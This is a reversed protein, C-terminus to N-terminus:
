GHDPDPFALQARDAASAECSPCRMVVFTQLPEAAQARLLKDLEGAERSLENLLARPVNPWLSFARCAKTFVRRAEQQGPVKRLKGTM